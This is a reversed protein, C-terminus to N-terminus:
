SAEPRSSRPMSPTDTPSSIATCNARPRSPATTFLFCSYDAFQSPIHSKQVQQQSPFRFRVRFACSAVPGRVRFSEFKDPLLQASTRDAPSFKGSMPVGKHSRGDEARSIPPADFFKQKSDLPFHRPLQNRKTIPVRAPFVRFRIRHPANVPINRNGHRVRRNRRRMELIHNPAIRQAALPAPLNLPHNGALPPNGEFLMQMTSIRAM